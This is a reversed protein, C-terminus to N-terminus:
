TEQRKGKPDAKKQEPGPVESMQREYWSFLARLLSPLCHEAVCGFASLLQDFQPDEGRQLVKSLSKEQLIKLYEIVSLIFVFKHNVQPEFMIAAEEIKKEAQITFDAFLSQMVYEGPKVDM